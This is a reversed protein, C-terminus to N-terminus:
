GKLGREIEKELLEIGAQGAPAIHPRAAVRGGNRLAHGNELLHAIQYRKPSHVTVELSTASEKTTKATWSKAYKGTRSPANQSIEKKVLASSKKVSTKMTDTALAAYEELGEMVASALDDVSITM